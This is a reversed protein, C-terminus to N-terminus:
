ISLLSNMSDMLTPGPKFTQRVSLPTHISKLYPDLLVPWNTENGATDQFGVPPLTDNFDDAYMFVAFAQQRVSNVCAAQRGKEKAKGLAPLLLAALIAIIARAFISRCSVSNPNPKAGARASASFVLSL